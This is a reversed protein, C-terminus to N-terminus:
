DCKFDGGDTQHCIDPWGFKNWYDVLGRKKVFEKFRPLKRVDRMVPVWMQHGMLANSSLVKEMANMALDPDGFYAAWM